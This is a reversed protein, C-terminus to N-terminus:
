DDLRWYSHAMKRDPTLQWLKQFPVREVRGDLLGVNSGNNHVTPRAFNYACFDYAGMSDVDGDHDLDLTFNYRSGMPSYVFHTLTDMYILVDDPKRIRSLKMSGGRDAYYFPALGPESLGGFNAGIWCNWDGFAETYHPPPGRRGGPCRRLEDDFIVTEGYFTNEQVKKGLYPSLKMHWFPKTYDTSLDGFPPLQDTHDDAYLQTAYLWNKTNTACRATQSKSKAKSLAPLLMGVLVTIIAIVTLLEILTFAHSPFRGRLQPVPCCAASTHAVATQNKEPSSQM